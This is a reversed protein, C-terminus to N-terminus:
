WHKLALFTKALQEDQELQCTLLCNQLKIHDHFKLIGIKKLDGSVADNPKKFCIKRFSKTFSSNFKSKSYQNAEIITCM